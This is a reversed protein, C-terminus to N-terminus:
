KEWLYVWVNQDELVLRLHGELDAYIDPEDELGFTSVSFRSPLM